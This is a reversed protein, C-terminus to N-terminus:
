SYMTFSHYSGVPTDNELGDDTNGDPDGSSGAGEVGVAPGQYHYSNASRELLM